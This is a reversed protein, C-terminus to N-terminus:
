LQVQKKSLIYIFIIGGIIGTIVGVPLELPSIITRAFLDCFILFSAGCLYSSLMLIRHDSGTIMRMSHPIILGIFMIIGAISVSIGTLLSAIVFLIKKTRITNIGLFAAHEDGLSLANLANGFFLSIILGIISATSVIKILNMDPEDLSGMIWFVINHLENNRSISMLLMVFSSSVFSIMVGTLLMTDSELASTKISLTYVLFIVICAGTFGAFPFAIAGIKAYLGFIMAFCVGLSAGGSIGLTYPEVLPNRFIGQLITGALSLAGGTFIAIIIRPLRINILINYQISSKDSLLLPIIDKFAIKTSGTSLALLSTLILLVLLSSITLIWLKLKKNEM